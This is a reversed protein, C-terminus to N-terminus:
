DDGKKINIKRRKRDHALEIINLGTSSYGAPLPPPKPVSLLFPCVQDSVSIPHERITLTLCEALAKADQEKQM